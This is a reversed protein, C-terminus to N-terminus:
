KRKPAPTASPDVDPTTAPAGPEKTTSSRLAAIEKVADALKKALEDSEKALQEAAANANAVDAKAQERVEDFARTVAKERRDLEAEFSAVLEEHSGGTTKAPAFSDKPSVVIDQHPSTRLKAAAADALRQNAFSGGQWAGDVHITFRGNM